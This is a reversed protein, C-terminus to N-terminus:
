VTSGEASTTGALVDRLRERARRLRGEIARETIGYAVALQSVKQREYHFQELLESEAPPLQALARTMISAIESSDSVRDDEVAALIEEAPVSDLPVGQRKRYHNIILNRAVTTLWALPKDPAGTRPWERVARLWVEQTVDEALEREGACKRSAYGYLADVTAQYISRLQAETIRSSM